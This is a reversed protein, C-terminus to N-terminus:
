KASDVVYRERARFPAKAIILLMSLGALYFSARVRKRGPSMADIQSPVHMTTPGALDDGFQFDVNMDAPGGFDLGLANQNAQDSPVSM